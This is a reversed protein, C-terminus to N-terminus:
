FDVKVQGYVYRGSQFSYTLAAGPVNTPGGPTVQGLTSPTGAIETIGRNEFINNVGLRFEAKKGFGLKALYDTRYGAVFDTENYAAIKNLGAGVGTTQGGSGYMEGNIKYLLSGFFTQDDYILGGAATYRPADGVMLGSNVGSIFKANSLAGSAYLSLGKVVAYTGEAEVGQYRATGGDFYISSGDPATTTVAFNTATIQYVDADVAFTNNKYVAGAQYNTTREPSIGSNAFNTVYYASVTPALFGESAQGYFTLDPLVRYRVDLFPMGATYTHAFNAPELTTQNVLADHDRTFWEYKFGPTITLQDTPKWQYEIYPQFNDVKSNLNLKYFAANLVAQNNTGTVTTPLASYLVGQTYDYYEQLRDNSAYEWWFGANLRGSAVGANVDRSVNFIDGYARYDNDKLYGTVDNAGVTPFKVTTSTAVIGDTLFWAPMKVSTVTGPGEVSLNNGNNQLTPYTYAYTYVKEDIHFGLMDGRMDLYEMDTQKVSNNYGVYQQTAPNNNLEGYNKGFMNLQLMTPASVNNYHELGFTSLGTFTFDGFEHQLKVLAYDSRVNGFELEGNSQEHDYEVLLKTGSKDLLGSQLSTAATWTGWAGFSTTASGGFKDSLACSNLSMTGGFTAYGVQSAQGPGRDVTESCLFAGPFYADSHHTPDNFDGFPIGDFTINYQGDVFGRWSAKTDGLAGNPNSVTFNPTFQLSQNYDATPPSIDQIVKDSVTSGPEIANLSGQSPALAPASGPAAEAGIADPNAPTQAAQVDVAGINAPQAHASSALFLALVITSAGGARGFRDCQRFSNLAM